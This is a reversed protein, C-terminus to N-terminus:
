RKMRNASQGIEATRALPREATGIAPLAPHGNRRFFHRRLRERDGLPHSRSREKCERDQMGHPCRLVYLRKRSLAAREVNFVRNIRDFGSSFNRRGRRDESRPRASSTAWKAFSGM